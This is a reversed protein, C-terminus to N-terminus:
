PTNQANVANQRMLQDVRFVLAAGIGMGILIAIIIGWVSALGPTLLFGLIGGLAIVGITTFWYSKAMAWSVGYNIYENVTVTTGIIAGIATVLLLAILQLVPQQNNLTIHWLIRVLVLIVFGGTM